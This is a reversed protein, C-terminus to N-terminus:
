IRTSLRAIPEFHHMSNATHRDPYVSGEVRFLPYRVLLIILTQQRGSAGGPLPRELSRPM